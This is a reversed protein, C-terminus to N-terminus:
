LRYVRSATGAFLEHHESVSAGAAMKKFANWLTVYSVSHKDVPFNSEFMCREPGFAEIVWSVPGAWDNVLDDSSPPRDRGEYGLGYMTMGIGGIKVVVNQCRGLDSVLRRWQELMEDRKGAHSEIGILGGLHDLVFTVEPLARALDTLEPIQHWFLWADFTLGRAGLRAVGLRFDPEALMHPRPASYVHGVAPDDDFATGHRIGRFRGDGAALHADLVEDVADGLTMDAFGVIGRIPPGGPTHGADLAVVTETEGVTRLHVPGDARYGTRCEAFVTAIVNHGSTTDRDLDEVMYDSAARWGHWLHHHPDVIALEPDLAPEINTALWAEDFTLM